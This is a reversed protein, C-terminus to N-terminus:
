VSTVGSLRSPLFCSSARIMPPALIVSVVRFLASSISCPYFFVALPPEWFRLFPIKPNLGQCVATKKNPYEPHVRQLSFTPTGNGTLSSGAPALCRPFASFYRGSHDAQFSLPLASRPRGICRSVNSSTRLAYVSLSHRILPPVANKRGRDKLPYLANIKLSLSFIM